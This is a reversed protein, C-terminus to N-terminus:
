KRREKQERKEAAGRDRDRDRSREREEERRGEGAGRQGGRGQPETERCGAQGPALVNHGQDARVDPPAQRAAVPQQGAPPPLARRGPGWRPPQRGLRAASPKLEGPRDEAPGLGSLVQHYRAQSGPAREGKGRGWPWM